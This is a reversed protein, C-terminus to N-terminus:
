CATTRGIAGIFAGTNLNFKEVRHNNAGDGVYLFGNTTDAYLGFAGNFM